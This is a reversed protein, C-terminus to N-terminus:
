SKSTVISYLRSISDQGAEDPQKPIGIIMKTACCCQDKREEIWTLPPEFSSNRDSDAHVTSLIGLVVVKSPAPWSGGTSREPSDRRPHDELRGSPRSGGVTVSNHLHRPLHVARPQLMLSSVPNLQSWSHPRASSCATFGGWWCRRKLWVFGCLTANSDQSNQIM